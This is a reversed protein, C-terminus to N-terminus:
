GSHFLLYLLFVYNENTDFDSNYKLQIFAQDYIM